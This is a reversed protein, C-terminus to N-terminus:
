PTLRYVIGFHGTNFKTGGDVQFYFTYRRRTYEATVNAYHYQLPGLKISDYVKEDRYPAGLIWGRSIRLGASEKRGKIVLETSIGAAGFFRDRIDLTTLSDPLKTRFSHYAGFERQLNTEMGIVRWECGGGLPIVYNIGGSFGTGGFFHRGTYTNVEAAHAPQNVPPYWNISSDWPRANYAGLSLSLGSYCQFRGFRHAWYLSADGGSLEDQKNVNGAGWFAAARAYFATKQSDALLPLPHYEGSNGNFPSVYIAQAHYQYACGSLLTVATLLISLNRCASPQM